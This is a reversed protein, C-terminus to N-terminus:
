DEGFIKKIDRKQKATMLDGVPVDPNQEWMIAPIKGKEPILENKRKWVDEDDFFGGGIETGDVPTDDDLSHIHEVGVFHFLSDDQHSEAWSCAKDYVELASSGEFLVNCSECKVRRVGAAPLQAFLLDAVYWM